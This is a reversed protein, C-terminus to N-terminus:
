NRSFKWYFVKFLYHMEGRQRIKYIKLSSVSKCLCIISSLAKPFLFMYTCLCTLLYMSSSFGLFSSFAHFDDKLPNCLLHFIPSNSVSLSIKKKKCKIKKKNVQTNRIYMELTIGKGPIRAFM